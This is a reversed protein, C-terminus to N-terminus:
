QGLGERLFNEKVVVAVGEVVAVEDASFLWANALLLQLRLSINNKLMIIACHVRLRHRDGITTLGLRSLEEDSLESVNEPEIKESAFQYEGYDSNDTRAM